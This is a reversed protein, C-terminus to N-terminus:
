TNDDDDDDKPECPLVPPAKALWERLRMLQSAVLGAGVLVGLAIVIAATM